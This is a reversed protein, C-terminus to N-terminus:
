AQAADQWEVKPEEKWAFRVIHSELVDKVKGLREADPANCALLLVGDKATMDCTGIGFDAHGKTDEGETEDWTAPIKHAFHKCLQVLYRGAKESRVTAHASHM